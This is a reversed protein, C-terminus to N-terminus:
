VTGFDIRFIESLPFMSVEVLLSCGLTRVCDIGGQVSATTIDFMPIGRSRILPLIM